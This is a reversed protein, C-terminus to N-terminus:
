ATSGHVRAQLLDEAQVLLQGPDDVAVLHHARGGHETLDRDRDAAQDDVLLGRQEGLPAQLAALALAGVARAGEDHDVHALGRGAEVVTQGGRHRPAHAAAGHVSRFPYM